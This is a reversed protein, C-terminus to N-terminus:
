NVIQVKLTIFDILGSQLDLLNFSTPELVVVPMPVYAEFNSTLSVEYRDEFLFPKVNWSISVAIRNIFVVLNNVQAKPHWIVQKSLHNDADIFIEYYYETLNNFSVVGFRDSIQKLITSGDASKLQVRALAVNPKDSAFYTYEDELKISLESIQFTTVQFRFAISKFVLEDSSVVINDIYSGTPSLDNASISFFVRISNNPAM